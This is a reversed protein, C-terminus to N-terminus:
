FYKGFYCNKLYSVMEMMCSNINEYCHNHLTRDELIYHWTTQQFDISTGSYCKEVKLTSSYALCSILILCASFLTKNVAQKNRPKQKTKGELRFISSVREESVDTSPWRFFPAIDWFIYNKIM